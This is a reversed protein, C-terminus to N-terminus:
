LTKKCDTVLEILWNAKRTAVIENSFQEYQMQLGIINMAFLIHYSITLPPDLFNLNLTGSSVNCTM